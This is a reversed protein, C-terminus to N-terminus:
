YDQPGVFKMNKKPDNQLGDYERKSNKLPGGLRRDSHYKDCERNSNKQLEGIKRESHYKDNKISTWRITSRFPDM